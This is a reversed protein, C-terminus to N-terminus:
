EQVRMFRVDEDGGMAIPLIILFGATRFTHRFKGDGHSDVGLEMADYYPGLIVDGKQFGMMGFTRSLRIRGHSLIFDKGEIFISEKYVVGEGIAKVILMNDGAKRVEVKDIMEHALSGEGPWIFRSLLFYYPPQSNSYLGREGSNKYVGELQEIKQIRGFDANNIPGSSLCGALSFSILVLVIKIYM